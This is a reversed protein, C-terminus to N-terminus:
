FQNEMLRGKDMAVSAAVTPLTEDWMCASSTWTPTPRDSPPPWGTDPYMSAEDLRKLIGVAKAAIAPHTKEADV